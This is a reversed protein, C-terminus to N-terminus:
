EMTEEEGERVEEPARCEEGEGQAEGQGSGQERRWKNYPVWFVCDFTYEALHCLLQLVSEIATHTAWMQRMLWTQEELASRVGELFLGIDAGGEGRVDRLCRM